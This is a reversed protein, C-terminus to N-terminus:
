LPSRPTGGRGPSSGLLLRALARVREEPSLGALRVHARVRAPRPTVAYVRDAVGVLDGIQHSVVLMATGRGRIERLAESLASRAGLDLGSFPEDLLLLDPGLVLARAIAAKRATGGSVQRPYMGLYESIGLTEAAEFVARRREGEPVGRFRLGLEVNEYITKWPLLLDEQFVVGLTGRVEVAGSDPELLGSVCRILTTKGSGNPGVLGVAEGESVELDIRDLVPVGGFSKRLGSVRLVTEM